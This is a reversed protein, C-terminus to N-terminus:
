LEIGFREADAPVDVDHAEVRVQRLAIGDVLRRMSGGQLDRRTRALLEAGPYVALLYQERGEADVAIAPGGAARVLAFAAAVEPVDCALVAVLDAPEGLASLGAGVASAPGSGVPDEVAHLLGEVPPRDGVVVIRRAGAVADVTHQLLTAGGHVLSAKDVGGLRSGRGGALIIADFPPGPTM